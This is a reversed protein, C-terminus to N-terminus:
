WLTFYTNKPRHFFTYDGWSTNEGYRMIILLIESGQTEVILLEAVLDGGNEHAM